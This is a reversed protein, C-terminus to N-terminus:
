ELLSEFNEASILRADQPRELFPEVDQLLKSFDLGHVKDLLLARWDASQFTGTGQTQDLASQLLEPNPATPPRYSLYWLM